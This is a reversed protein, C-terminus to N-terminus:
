APGAGNVRLGDAVARYLELHRDVCADWSFLDRALGLAAESLRRREAPDGVAREVAAAFDAPGGSVLMLGDSGHSGYTRYDHAARLIVPLGSSLAEQAVVPFGEGYSPLLLCDAARYLRAVADRPRPGLVDVHPRGRLREEDGPGVLVARFRGGAAAAAAAVEDVGKKRVLRGVFLARPTEDWGLERRLAEREGDRAPRFASMDIGNPIFSV